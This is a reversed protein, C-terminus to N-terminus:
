RLADMKRNLRRALYANVRARRLCERYSARLVERVWPDGALWQVAYRRWMAAQFLRGLINHLRDRPEIM